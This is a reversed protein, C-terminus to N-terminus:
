TTSPIEIPDDFYNRMRGPMSWGAALRSPALPRSEGFFDCFKMILPDWSRPDVYATGPIILSDEVHSRLVRVQIAQATGFDHSDVVECELQIPCEAVREPTVLDSKQRTLGSVEFKRPEYRYGTRRKNDSLVPEATLLALRDVHDVLDASALNLVCVGTRLLNKTTRSSGGLGLMACDNLWWASSMPAVNTTGDPNTSSILVVPTGYYHVKLSVTSHM